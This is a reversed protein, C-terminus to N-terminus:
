QISEGMDALITTLDDIMVDVHEKEIVLPPVFRLVNPGANVFLHGEKYGRQIIPAVEVTMEVGILLGRGRVEKILPSNIESLRDKLYDGVERVHALFEPQSIRDLVYAAAATVLPGGGFTTGHDGPKICDAVAQTMLVAGIPLGGALPKALTQLDPLVGSPENSWLTGTRGLGCQVQDFILLADYQDCLARLGRLFEPTSEHVGGEAQVPEVIVAATKENIVARASDLNNHEATIVSPMLPRFPAQYTERPTLALSGMTRGHFGNTFSVIETKDHHGREYAVKRAFKVAGEVAETGSNCFFVRDAFSLECLKAALEAQPATHYLNSVHLLGTAAQQITETLGPDGYGLANVAIGAVWDIYANGDADYLTVGEGRTLVFPPRKYTGAVYDSELGIVQETLTGETQMM